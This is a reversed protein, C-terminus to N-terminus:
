AALEQVQTYTRIRQTGNDDLIYGTCGNAFSGDLGPLWTSSIIAIGKTTLAKLTKSNFHRKAPNNQM